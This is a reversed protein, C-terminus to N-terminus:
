GRAAGVDVERTVPRGRTAAERPTPFALDAGAITGEVFVCDREWGLASAVRRNTERAQRKVDVGVVELPQGANPQALRVSRLHPVRKRMRPGGAADAEREDRLSM